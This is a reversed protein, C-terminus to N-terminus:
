AFQFCKYVSWSTCFFVSICECLLRANVDTAPRKEYVDWETL